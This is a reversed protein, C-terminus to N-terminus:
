RRPGRIVAFLGKVKRGDTMSEQENENVLRTSGPCSVAGATPRRGVCLDRARPVFACQPPRATPTRAIDVARRSDSRNASDRANHTTRSPTQLRQERRDVGSCGHPTLRSSRGGSVVSSATAATRATATAPRRWWSWSSVRFGGSQPSIRACASSPRPLDLSRRNSAYRPSPPAASRHATPTRRCASARRGTPEVLVPRVHIREDVVVRHRPPVRQVTKGIRHRHEIPQPPRRHDLAPLMPPETKAVDVDRLAVQLRARRVARGSM